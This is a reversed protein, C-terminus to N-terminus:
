KTLNDLMNTTETELSHLISDILILLEENDIKIGKSDLMTTAKEIALELKEESKDHIDLKNYIYEVSEVAVKVVEQKTKTDLFMKLKNTLATFLITLAGTLFTVLAPIFISKFLEMM